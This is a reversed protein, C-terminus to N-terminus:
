KFSLLICHNGMTVKNRSTSSIKTAFTKSISEVFGQVTPEVIVGIVVTWQFPQGIAAKLGIQDGVHILGAGFNPKQRVAIVQRRIGPIRRVVILRDVVIPQKKHGSGGLEVTQKPGNHRSISVVGGIVAVISPCSGSCLCNLRLKQGEM